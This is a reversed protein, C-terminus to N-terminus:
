NLIFKNRWLGSSDNEQEVFAKLHQHVLSIPLGVVNSYSGEVRTIFPLAAGQIGYAGAKDLSDGTEIYCELIDSEINAFTVVSEDFFIDEKVHGKEDYSGFYVASIVHHSKGSLRRLIKRAEEKNKPKGFVEEGLAVITDSAIILPMAGEKKSTKGLVARGKLSAIDMAQRAPTGGHSIEDINESRVDFPINLYGLLEKRRPSLSALILKYKKM